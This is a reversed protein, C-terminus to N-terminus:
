GTYVESPRPYPVLIMYSSTDQPHRLYLASSDGATYFLKCSEPFVNTSLQDRPFTDYSIFQTEGISIADEPLESISTSEYTSSYKNRDDYDMSSLSVYLNENYFVYQRSAEITCYRYPAFGVVYAQYPIDPNQYIKSGISIGYAQYDASFNDNDGIESQITGVVGGYPLPDICVSLICRYRPHHASSM